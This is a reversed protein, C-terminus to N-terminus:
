KYRNTKTKRTRTRIKRGGRVPGARLHFPGIPVSRFVNGNKTVVYHGPVNTESVITDRPIALRELEGHQPGIGTTAIPGLTRFQQLPKEIVFKPDPGNLLSSDIEIGKYTKGNGLKASCFYTGTGSGPITDIHYVTLIGKKPIHLNTYWRRYPDGVVSASFPGFSKIARFQLVM